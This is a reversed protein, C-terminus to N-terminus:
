APTAKQLAHAKLLVIIHEIREYEDLEAREVETLLGARERMLLTRLRAQMESTPRFAALQEPSPDGALFELIYRYVQSPLPSLEGLGLALIETLREQYPSLREALSEPVQLTITPM